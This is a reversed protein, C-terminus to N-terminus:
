WHLTLVEAKVEYSALRKFFNMGLLSHRMPAENVSAMLDNMHFAGIALDDISLSSGRVTGNATEYFRDFHLHEPRLGLREADGPAIVVHSAGTDALFTIPVGNVHARIYFHGDASVPFSVTNAAEQFGTSPVFEAVVRQRVGAIEHRYSYGVMALLIIGGWISLYRLKQPLKGSSLSASILGVLLLAYIVQGGNERFTFVGFNRNLLVMLGALLAAVILFRQWYPGKAKTGTAGAADEGRSEDFARNCNACIVPTKADM